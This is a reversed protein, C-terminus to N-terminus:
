GKYEKAADISVTIPPKNDDCDFTGPQTPSVRVFKGNQVQMGVYCTSPVKGGIDTKPMMGNADFEHLNKIAALINARTISNPDNNHSAVTDNVARAFAEGALWAQM